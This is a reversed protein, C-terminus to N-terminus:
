LPLIVRDLARSRDLARTQTRTDGGAARRALSLMRAPLILAPRGTRKLDGAAQSHALMEDARAPRWGPFALM